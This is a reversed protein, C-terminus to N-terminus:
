GYKMEFFRLYNQASAISSAVIMRMTAFLSRGEDVCLRRLTPGLLRPELCATLVRIHQDTSSNPACTCADFREPLGQVACKTWTNGSTSSTLKRRVEICELVFFLHAFPCTSLLGKVIDFPHPFLSYHVFLVASNLSSLM